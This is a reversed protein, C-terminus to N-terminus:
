YNQVLSTTLKFGKEILGEQSQGIENLMDSWASGLSAKLGLLGESQAEMMGAFRGGESAASRFADAVMDASIAGGEMEKKLEGITKGTKESIVTLPNFGANIMQMLDQGMLKGTSSMQAFALTLSNFKGADGMSINGIQELIPIIREAEINFGLLTQAAKSTDSVSLPSKLAISKIEALMADAKEKNGLLVEFTKDLAQMEARVNIVEKGFNVLAAAGGIKMLMSQLSGFGGAAKSAANGSNQMERESRQISQILEEYDSTLNDVNQGAALLADRTKDRM